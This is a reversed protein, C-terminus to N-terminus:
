KEVCSNSIGFPIVLKWQLKYRYEMNLTRDIIRDPCKVGRIRSDKLGESPIESYETSM